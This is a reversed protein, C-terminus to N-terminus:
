ASLHARARRRDIWICKLLATLLYIAKKKVFDIIRKLVFDKKRLPSEHNSLIGSKSNLGYNERYYKTLWFSFSKANGYPSHPFFLDKENKFIKKSKSKAKKRLFFYLMNSKRLTCCYKSLGFRKLSFKM